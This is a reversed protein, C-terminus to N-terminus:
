QKYVDDNQVDDVGAINDVVDLQTTPDERDEEAVSVKKEDEEALEEVTSTDSANQSTPMADWLPGNGIDEVLCNKWTLIAPESLGLQNVRNIVSETMPIETFQARNIIKGTDLALFMYNTTLTTLPGLAIAGRQRLHM